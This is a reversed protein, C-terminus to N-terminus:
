ELSYLIYLNEKLQGHTVANRWELSYLIYLNEKLQGHTVVNRWELSYLIYLNEKLQGHTVVNRWELSYFKLNLERSHLFITIWMFSFKNRGNNLVFKIEFDKPPGRCL